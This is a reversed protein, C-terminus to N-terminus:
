KPITYGYSEIIARAKDSKLYRMLEAAAENLVGKKLLIADQRLPAHLEAPVAWVSGEALKGDRTVQSLAIFGLEAKGSATFQWAQALDPKEAMRPRLQDALGLQQLTRMAAAGYPSLKPDAIALHQWDPRQLVKGQADVYDPKKSWLALQGIAYTFRTAGDGLGQDALKQPTAQDAALLVGFPAGRAIDAQFRGTPAFSLSLKHHTDKEFQVAIKQMPTSFSTDVAVMVYAAHAGSALSTLLAAATALRQLHRTCPSAM